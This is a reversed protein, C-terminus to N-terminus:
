EQAGQQTKPKITKDLIKIIRNLLPRHSMLDVGEAGALDSIFKEFQDVISKEQASFERDQTTSKIRERSAKQRTATSMTGSKIAPGKEDQEKLCERIIQKLKEKNIKMQDGDMKGDKREEKSINFMVNTAVDLNLSVFM